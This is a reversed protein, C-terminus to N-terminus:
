GLIRLCTCNEAPEAALVTRAVEGPKDGLTAIITGVPVKKGAEVQISNLYGSDTSEVEMEVKDTEVTFLVEGKEVWDGAQKGWSVVSGEEVTLGLQPMVVDFTM